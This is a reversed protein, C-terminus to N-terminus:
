RFLACLELYTFYNGEENSIVNLNAIKQLAYKNSDDKFDFQWVGTDLYLFLMKFTFKKPYNSYQYYLFLCGIGSKIITTFWSKFSM